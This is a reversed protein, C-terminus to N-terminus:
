DLGQENSPGSGGVIAQGPYVNEVFRSDSVVATGAVLVHIIGASPLDGQEYTSRDIVTAPDFITLDADAGVQIRGKRTMQPSHNELRQAPLLTMKRLAEMLTLAEGERTHRGLVRSFTGAGRPHAPGYLYPIGDSAVIVEPQAVIWASTEENRGHIIVWGGEKRYRRFTATTLREGTAAWQLQNYEEDSLGEWADFLASEIRTSGATYPYSETTIDLGRERAGRIM